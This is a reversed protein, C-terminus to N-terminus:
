SIAKGAVGTEPIKAKRLEPRGNGEVVKKIQPHPIPPIFPSPYVLGSFVLGESVNFSDETALGFLKKDHNSLIQKPRIYNPQERNIPRRNELDERVSVGGRKKKPPPLPSHISPDSRPPHITKGKIIEAPRKESQNTKFNSVLM